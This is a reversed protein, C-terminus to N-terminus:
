WTNVCVRGAGDRSSRCSDVLIVGFSNWEHRRSTVDQGGRGSFSLVSYLGKMRAASFCGAPAVAVSHAVLPFTGNSVVRTRFPCM